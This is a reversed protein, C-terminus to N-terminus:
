MDKLAKDAAAKDAETPRFLASGGEGSLEHGERYGHKTLLVKSIVPNLDGILAGNALTTAQLNMMEDILVSFDVHQKKWEQVTDKNIKLHLALGEVMPLRMRMKSTIVAVGKKGKKKQLLIEEYYEGCSDIYERALKLISADFKTPRGRPRTYEGITGKGM